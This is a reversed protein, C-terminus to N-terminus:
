WLVTNSKYVISNGDKFKIKKQQNNVLIAKSNFFLDIDHEKYFNESRLLIKSINDPFWKSLNTRDYPYYGEDTYISIKGKTIFLYLSVM